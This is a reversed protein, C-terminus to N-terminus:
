DANPLPRNCIFAMIGTPLPETRPMGRVRLPYSVNDLVDMHPWVAYSQFVMGIRRDEPPVWTGDAADVVTRGGVEIRGADPNELGAVLRLVTTKGCGSAGLLSVLDGEAVRLDFDAVVLNDDFAKRVSTLDVATM